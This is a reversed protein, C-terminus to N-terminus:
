APNRDRAVRVGSPFAIETSTGVCGVAPEIRRCATTHALKERHVGSDGAQEVLLFDLFDDVGIAAPDVAAVEVENAGAVVRVRRVLVAAKGSGDVGIEFPDVPQEGAVGPRHM